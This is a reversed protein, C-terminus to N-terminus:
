DIFFSFLNATNNNLKLTGEVVHYDAFAQSWQDEGMAAFGEGWQIRGL